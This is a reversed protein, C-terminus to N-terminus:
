SSRYVAVGQPAIERSGIVFASDAVETLTHVQEGYNFVYTLAGRRSIRVDDGLAVVALGAERAIAAFLRTTLADDFLSAFYHATGSRVYAPHGDAFRARIELAAHQAADLEVFDRWHRGVGDDLSASGAIRVPETVNPRLSEVRWVRVPMVAALTGPPLAAPIQLDETKSGSRPGLVVQAG